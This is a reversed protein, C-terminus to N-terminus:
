GSTDPLVPVDAHDGAPSAPVPHALVALRQEGVRALLVTLSNPGRPSLERRLAAPDIDVGRKKIELVGVERARLEARLRKVSYGLVELVRYSRMLPAATVTAGPDRVDPLRGAPLRDSTLYALHEDIRAAGAAAAAQQVLGARIIAGDPEHLYEGIPRVATERPDLDTLGVGAPLLTARRSVRPGDAAFGASWLVAEKVGGAFSVWEAEVGPPVLGHDLGPALKSAALRHGGLVQMVFNLSPSFAAPDAIRGSSTRRAPDIFVAGAAQWAATTADGVAVRGAGPALVALNAAAVAATGPDLEIGHVGMGAEAFALLDAGIGCCLDLVASAEAARFRRARHSALELRTSQELGAATFYMREALAGFKARARARLEVQALAATAIGTANGPDLLTRIRAARRVPDTEVVAAAAAIATEFADRGAPTTLDPLVAGTQGM